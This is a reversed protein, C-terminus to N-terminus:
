HQFRAATFATYEEVNRRGLVFFRVGEYRRAFWHRLAALKLPAEKLFVEYWGKGAEILRPTLLSFGVIALASIDCYGRSHHGSLCAYCNGGRFAM